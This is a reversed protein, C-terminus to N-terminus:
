SVQTTDRAQQESVFNGRRRGNGNRSTNNWNQGQGGRFSPPRYRPAYRGTGERQGHPKYSNNGYGNWGWSYSNNWGYGWGNNNWGNGWGSGNWGYGNSGENWCGTYNGFEGRGNGKVAGSTQGVSPDWLHGNNDMSSNTVKKLGEETDGWGTSSFGQNSVLSNGFIVVSETREDENPVLPDHDLELELEPDNQSDWDIEDIYMNPDPMPIDCPLGNMNAYFRAKANHFAEEAASDNWQLVNDYLHMCSKMEM